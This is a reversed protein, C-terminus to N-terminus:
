SVRSRQLGRRNCSTAKMSESLLTALGGPEDALRELAHQFKSFDDPGPPNQRTRVYEVGFIEQKLAMLEWVCPSQADARGPAAARRKLEGFREVSTPNRDVLSAFLTNLRAVEPSQVGFQKALKYFASEVEGLMANDTMAAYYIWDAAKKPGEDRDTPSSVEYSAPQISALAGAYKLLEPHWIVLYNDGDLDGGGMKDAEPRAGQTSFLICNRLRLAPHETPLELVELVRVDGPHYSPSRSVIVEGPRLPGHELLVVCQQEGLTHHLQEPWVTGFLTRSAALPIQVKKTQPYHRELSAVCAKYATLERAAASLSSPRSAQAHEHLLLRRVHRWAAPKPDLAAFWAMAVPDHWSNRLLSLHQEQLADLTVDEVTGSLLCLLQQGLRGPSPQSHGIVGLKGGLVECATVSTETKLMSARMQIAHVDEQDPDVLLVGKCIFEKKSEDLRTVTGCYRIQFVSPCERLGLQNQVVRALKCSILGVGDTFDFTGNRYTAIESVQVDSPLTAATALGSFMLGAYKVRKPAGKKRELERLNPLVKLLHEENAQLSGRRMVYCHRQVQSNSCGFLNYHEDKGVLDDGHEEERCIGVRLVHERHQDVQYQFVRQVTDDHEPESLQLIIYDHSVDEDM